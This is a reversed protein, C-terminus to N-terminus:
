KRNDLEITGLVTDASFSFSCDRQARNLNFRQKWQTTRPSSHSTLYFRVKGIKIEVRALQIM